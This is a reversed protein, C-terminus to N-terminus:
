TKEPWYKNVLHAGVTFLVGALIGVVIFGLWKRM